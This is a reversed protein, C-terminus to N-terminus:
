MSITALSIGNKHSAPQTIVTDNHSRITILPAPVNVCFLALRIVDAEDDVENGLNSGFDRSRVHVIHIDNTSTVPCSKGVPHQNLSSSVPRELPGEGHYGGQDRGLVMVIFEPCGGGQGISSYSIDIVGSNHGLKSIPKLISVEVASLITSELILSLGRTWAKQTPSINDSSLLSVIQPSLRHTESSSLESVRSTDANTGSVLRHLLVEIQVSPDPVVFQHSFAM